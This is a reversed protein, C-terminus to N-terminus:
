ANLLFAYLERRKPHKELWGRIRKIEELDDQGLKELLVQEHQRQREERAIEAQWAASFVHHLRDHLHHEKLAEWEHADLWLGSCGGCRDICFGVGHGVKVHTLFRGCEPCLKAPGSDHIAVADSQAPGSSRSPSHREHWLWYREGEIWQGGCRSCMLAPLQEDLEGPM